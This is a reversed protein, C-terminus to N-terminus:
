ILMTISRSTDPSIFFGLGFLASPSSYCTLAAILLASCKSSSSLATVTPTFAPRIRLVAVFNAFAKSYQSVIVSSLASSQLWLNGNYTLQPPPPSAGDIEACTGLCLVGRCPLPVMESGQLSRPSSSMRSFSLHMGETARFRRGPEGLCAAEAPVARALSQTRWIGRMGGNDQGGSTRPLFPLPGQGGMGWGWWDATAKISDIARTKHPPFELNERGKMM